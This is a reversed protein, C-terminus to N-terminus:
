STRVYYELFMRAPLGGMGHDHEKDAIPHAHPNSVAAVDTVGGDIDPITTPNGTDGQPVGTTTSLAGGHTPGAFDKLYNTTDQTPTGLGASHGHNPLKFTDAHGHGVINLADVAETGTIGSFAPVANLTSLANQGTYQPSVNGPDAGAIVEDRFDPPIGYSGVPAGGNGDCFTWVATVGAPVTDQIDNAGFQSDWARVTGVPVLADYTLQMFGAAITLAQGPAPTDNASTGCIKDGLEAIAALARRLTNNLGGPAMGEAAGDPAPATNQTEDQFFIEDWRGNPM